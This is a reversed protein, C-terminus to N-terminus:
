RGEVATLCTDVIVGVPQDLDLVLGHEDPELPELAAFQSAVLAVPMFHDARAAVRAAVVESDGSLHVFYAAPAAARLRDRFTRKLASCTVVGGDAHDALWRSIAALWPERDSDDLPVGASMKAVNAPPHFEDGEAFSAGLRGALLAAVTTKGSGAVGMVVINTNQHTVATDV